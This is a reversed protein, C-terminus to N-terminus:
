GQTFFCIFHSFLSQTCTAFCAEKLVQSQMYFYLNNEAHIYAIRWIVQHTKHVNYNSQMSNFMVQILSRYGHWSSDTKSQAHYHSTVHAKQDNSIKKGKQDICRGFQHFMISLLFAWLSLVPSISIYGVWEMGTAFVFPWCRVLIWVRIYFSHNRLVKAKPAFFTRLCRTSPISGYIYGTKKGGYFAGPLRQNSLILM